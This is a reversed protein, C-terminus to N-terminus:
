KALLPLFLRPEFLLLTASNSTSGTGSEASSIAGTTNTYLGSTAGIVDVRINCGGRSGLTGGALSIVGTGSIATVLGACTNSVNAPTAVVLGAPLIDTFAIGTLGAGAFNPNAIHLHLTSTYTQSVWVVAPSFYKGITPPPRLSSEFAGIDCLTGPPNPRTQGRQDLNNVPNNACYTSNGKELAASNSQLAMTQTSGGNNALAGLKPDGYEITGVCSSDTSPWRLNNGGDTVSGVCNGGSTANALITNRLTVTGGANYINGGSTVASNGSLTSHTVTVTAASNAVAGGFSASNGTFTSNAITVTGWNFIAGGTLASNGTCTSNLITLNGGVNNFIGGGNNIANNNSLTGNTLLVVGSNHIGGGLSVQTASSNSITVNQLTLSGNANVQFMRFDPTGGSTSRVITSNNGSITITSRIAPLGNPGLAADTNDVVTLTYVGAETKTEAV